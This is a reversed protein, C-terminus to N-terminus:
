HGSIKKLIATKLKSFICTLQYLILTFLTAPQDGGHGIKGPVANM